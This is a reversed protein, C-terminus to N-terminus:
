VGHRKKLRKRGVTGAAGHKGADKKKCTQCISLWAKSGDPLNKDSLHLM